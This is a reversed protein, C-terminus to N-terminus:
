IIRMQIRPIALSNLQPLLKTFELGAQKIEAPIPSDWDCKNVWLQQMIIKAEVICPSALGLPDFVQAITSLIQLKNVNANSHIDISFLLTDASCDWNLGLTKSLNDNSLDVSGSVKTEGSIALLIDRNNSHWKRLKLQASSLTHIVGRCLSITEEITANGSLFDDM